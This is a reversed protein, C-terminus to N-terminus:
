EHGCDLREAIRRRCLSSNMTEMYVSWVKIPLDASDLSLRFQYFCRINPFSLEFSSFCALARLAGLCNAKHCLGWVARRWWGKRGIEIDTYGSYRRDRAEWMM